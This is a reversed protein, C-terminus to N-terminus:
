HFSYLTPHRGLSQALRIEYDYAEETDHQLANLEIHELTRNSGISDPLSEMQHISDLAISLDVVKCGVNTLFLRVLYEAARCPQDSCKVYLRTISNTTALTSQLSPVDGPVVSDMEYGFIVSVDTVFPVRACWDFIADSIRTSLLPDRVLPLDFSVRVDTHNSTRTVHPTDACFQLLDVTSPFIFELSSPLPWQNYMAHLVLNKDDCLKFLACRSSPCLMNVLRSSVGCVVSYNQRTPRVLILLCLCKVVDLHVDPNSQSMKGIWLDMLKCHLDVHYGESAHYISRMVQDVTREYVDGPVYAPIPPWQDSAYWRKFVCTTAKILQTEMDQLFIFVQKKRTNWGSRKKSSRFEKETMASIQRTRVSASCRWVMCALELPRHYPHNYVMGSFVLIIM